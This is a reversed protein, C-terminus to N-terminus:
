KFLFMINLNRKQNTWHHVSYPTMSSFNGCNTWSDKIEEFQVEFTRKLFDWKGGVRWKENLNWKNHIQKMPIYFRHILCGFEVGLLFTWLSTTPFFHGSKHWWLFHEIINILYREISFHLWDQFQWIKVFCILPKMMEQQLGTLPLILIEISFNTTKVVLHCLDDLSM